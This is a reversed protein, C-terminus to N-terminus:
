ATVHIADGLMAWFPLNSRVAKPIAEHGPFERGLSSIFGEKRSTGAKDVGCCLQESSSSCSQEGGDRWSDWCDKLIASGPVGVEVKPVRPGSLWVVCYGFRERWSRIGDVLFEVRRGEIVIDKVRGRESRPVARERKAATAIAAGAVEVEEPRTAGM